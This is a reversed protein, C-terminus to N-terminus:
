MIQHTETHSPVKPVLFVTVTHIYAITVTVPTVTVSGRMKLITEVRGYEGNPMGPM